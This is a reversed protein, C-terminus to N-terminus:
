EFMLCMLDLIQGGKIKRKGRHEHPGKRNSQNKCFKRNQAMVVQKLGLVEQTIKELKGNEATSSSVNKNVSYMLTESNEKLTMEVERLQWFQTDIKKMLQNVLQAALDAKRGM